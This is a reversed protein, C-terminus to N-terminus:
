HALRPSGPHRVRAVVHPAVALVPVTASAGLVYVLLAALIGGGSLLTALAGLGSVGVGALVLALSWGADSEVHPLGTQAGHSRETM